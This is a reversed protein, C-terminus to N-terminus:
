NFCNGAVSVCLAVFLLLVLSPMQSSALSCRHVLWLSDWATCDAIKCSSQVALASAITHSGLGGISYCCCLLFPHFCSINMGRQSPLFFHCQPLIYRLTIEDMSFPSRWPLSILIGGLYTCRTM